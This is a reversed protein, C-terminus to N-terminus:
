PIASPSNMGAWQPGVSASLVPAPNADSIPAGGVTFALQDNPGSFLRHEPAHQPRPSQGSDDIHAELSMSLLPEGSPNAISVRQTFTITARVDLALVPSGNVQLEGSALDLSFANAM